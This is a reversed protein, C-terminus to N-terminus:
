PTLNVSRLMKGRLPCSSQKSFKYADNLTQCDDGITSYFSLAEGSLM